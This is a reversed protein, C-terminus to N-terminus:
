FQGGHIRWEEEGLERLRTAIELGHLKEMKHLYEQRAGRTPMSLLRQLWNYLAYEIPFPTGAPWEPKDM